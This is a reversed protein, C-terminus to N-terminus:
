TFRFSSVSKEIKSKYSEAEEDVFQGTVTYLRNYWGNSAMGIASVINRRSEGPNELSYEVYYLGNSAKSNILKAKVGPPRQWSRDLGTVLNEAFEDVKGFSELRTYDAGLLTIAVSVSTVWLQYKLEHFYNAQPILIQFKNVEDLYTRFDNKVDTEALAVSVISPFYFVASVLQFLAERRKTGSVKEEQIPLFYSEKNNNYCVITQNRCKTIGKPPSSLLYTTSTFSSTCLSSISAM